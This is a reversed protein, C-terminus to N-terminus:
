VVASISVLEKHDPPNTNYDYAWRTTVLQYYSHLSLFALFADARPLLFNIINNVEPESEAKDGRFINSCPDRDANVSLMLRFPTNFKVKRQLYIPVNQIKIVIHDM